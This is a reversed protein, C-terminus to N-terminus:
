PRPKRSLFCYAAFGAAAVIAVVAVILIMSIGSGDKEDTGGGGGATITLAAGTFTMTYNGNAALTGQRIAYVGAGAWFRPGPRPACIDYV